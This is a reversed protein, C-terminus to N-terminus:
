STAIRILVKGTTTRAELAAHASAADAFDFTPHIPTQLQGSAALAFLRDLTKALWQPNELISTYISYGTLSINKGLMQTLVADTIGQSGSAAGYYVIRGRSATVKVSAARVGGGIADLVVDVGRGDTLVRVDKPWDEKAYSVTKADVGAALGIKEVESAAGIIAGAGGLRALQLLMGGVGGGAATVLM